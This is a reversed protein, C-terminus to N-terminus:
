ATSICPFLRSWAECEAATPPELHDYIGPILLTGDAGKLQAIIEALAQLRNPAAGGYVGSHLDTRPGRVEIETYIAGRLGVCLTPLEPAFMETDCLLAADAGLAQGQGRLYADIMEGGSEEEGEILCKVNLPLKGTTQLFGEVAKLLLYTQGKDDAAGRAFLDDGRVQPEFPPSHWENLPDPPQVDYHGYLVLTPKGPAGLWEAAVIPHGEGEILRVDHMGMRELDGTISLGKEPALM